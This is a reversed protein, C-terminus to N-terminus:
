KVYNNKLIEQYNKEFKVIKPKTVNIIYPNNPNHEYYDQHYEEAQYFTTYPVLETVIPNNFKKKQELQAIVEQVQKRQEDDHFYVASRYQRGVDPGQRNLTTPDHTDFFVELIKRYSIIKPDFYIEVAEAHSTKGAAVAEYTPTTEAGGTYGSVAMKVGAVREFVAEVCWFCGGAVTAKELGEIDKADIKTTQQHNNNKKQACSSHSFLFGMLIIPILLRTNQM